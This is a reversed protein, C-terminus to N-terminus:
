PHDFALVRARGGTIDVYHAGGRLAAEVVPSGLRVFPGATTIICRASRAIADMSSPDALDGLLIPVDQGPLPPPSHPHM